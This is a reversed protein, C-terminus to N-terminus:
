EKLVVFTKGTGGDEPKAFYFDKIHPFQKLTKHVMNQLIGNGKGHVISFQLLRHMVALDLQKQLALSAEEYRMGLLRLEFVPKQSSKNEIIIETKKEARETIEPILEEEPLSLKLNGIAVLWKGNREKRIIEGHRNYSSVFVQLGDKLEPTSNKNKESKTKEKIKKQEANIEEKENALSQEFENFWKKVGATKEKTIEGERIERIINEMEKRKVKLFNDLRKYGVERLELEKQKLKLEKLDATRKAERLKKEEKKKVAEFENLDSHKKILGKILASVDAKNDTLLKNAKSIIKDPIGNNEAIEIAHSEGPVGMLIKYTPALTKHSFEVSANECLENTYGYNKLAGHHTTVFVLAGKEILDDLVAMAIACGEQPDTGNGLEDLAILSKKGAITLIGSINKMQASFTSLSQDISQEDGIDCAIFDFIPLRTKESAPVAWGTQNMLAFLCVTKLTVTKGGTNPGTIIVVKTKNLLKLDIPVATKGLMPHRAQHLCLPNNEDTPLAFVCNNQKAWRASAYIIDLETLKSISHQIVSFNEAIKETLEALLKQLERRYKAEASFLENNKEVIDDPEIYLTQGTQSYNHIVGKIRGKYNSKLAIVQRGDKVTPLESQLLDKYNKFYSQMIKTIDDEIKNIEKQIKSLVPINQLEGDENIFSFIAKRITELEPLNKIFLVATNETNPNDNLFNEAWKHLEYLAKALLGVSYIGEIKLIAGKVKLEKLFPLVPPRNKIPPKLDLQLLALFDSALKKKASIESKDTSPKSNLCETKGEETMCLKSINQCIKNYELIEFTHETM